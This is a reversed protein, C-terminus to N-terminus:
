DKKVDKLDNKLDSLLTNVAKLFIVVEDKTATGDSIKASAKGMEEDNM